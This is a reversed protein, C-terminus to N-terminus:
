SASTAPPTGSARLANVKVLLGFWFQAGPAIAVITILFGLLVLIIEWAPNGHRSIIGRQEWWNCNANPASCDVATGWGIPLGAQAAATLQDELNGLCSPQDQPCNIGKAAVASVASRITSDSYLARGITITNINLLVVLIAGVALTIIAVHRKYWGSVRAMHDDYWHEISSRFQAIDNNANAALGELSTRLTRMSDPLQSINFLITNMSTQGDPGVSDPVVLDIVAEAFSRAPIYSPLSRRLKLTGGGTSAPLSAPKYGDSGANDMKLTRTTIVGPMGQNRLVPSGLLASTVSAPDDPGPEADDTAVTPNEPDPAPSRRVTADPPLPPVKGILARVKGFDTAATSLDVVKSKGDLLERLGLLLYAGRLGLFRSVAETVVSAVAATVGFVFIIGVALDIVGSSLM